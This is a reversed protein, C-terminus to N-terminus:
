EWDRKDIVRSKKVSKDFRAADEKGWVGFVDKYNDTNVKDPNKTQGLVEGLLGQITKNLSTKRKRAEKRVLMELNKDLKHITISMM